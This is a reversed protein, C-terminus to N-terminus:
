QGFPFHRVWTRTKTERTRTAMVVQADREFPVSNTVVSSVSPVCQIFHSFLGNTGEKFDSFYYQFLCVHVLGGFGLSAFIRWSRDSPRFQCAVDANPPIGLNRCHLHGRLDGRGILTGTERGYESLQQITHPRLLHDHHHGNSGSHFYGSLAGPQLALLGGDDAAIQGQKRWWEDSGRAGTRRADWREEVDRVSNRSSFSLNREKMFFFLPSVMCDGLDATIQNFYQRHLTFCWVNLRDILWDIQHKEMNSVNIKNWKFICTKKFARKHVEKPSREVKEKM